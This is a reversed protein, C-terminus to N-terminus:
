KIKLGKLIDVNPMKILKEPKKTGYKKIKRVITMHALGAILATKRTSGGSLIYIHEIYIREIEEFRLPVEDSNKKITINGVPLCINTELVNSLKTTKKQTM